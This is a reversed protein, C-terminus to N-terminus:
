FFLLKFKFFMLKKWVVCLIYLNVMFSTKFFSVFRLASQVDGLRKEQKPISVNVGSGSTSRYADM